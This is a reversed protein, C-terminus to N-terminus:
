SVNKGAKKNNKLKSIITKILDSDVKVPSSDDKVKLGYQSIIEEMKNQLCKSEATQTLNNFNKRFKNWLLYLEIDM